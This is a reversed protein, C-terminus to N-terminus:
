ERFVDPFESILQELEGRQSPSLKDGIQPDGAVFELIRPDGVDELDGIEGQMLWAERDNWKKLTNTHYNQKRRIPRTRQAENVPGLKRTMQFPGQWRSFLKHNNDPLLVM